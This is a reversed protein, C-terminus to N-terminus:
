RGGFLPVKHSRNANVASESAQDTGHRQEDLDRGDECRVVVV